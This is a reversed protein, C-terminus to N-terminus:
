TIDWDPIYGSQQEHITDIICRLYGANKRAALTALKKFQLVSSASASKFQGNKTMPKDGTGFDFALEDAIVRVVSVAIGYEKALSAVSFSEMDVIVVDPNNIKKKDEIDYLREVEMVLGSDVVNGNWSSVNAVPDLKVAEGLSRSHAARDPKIITGHTLGSGVAGALGFVIIHSITFNSFLYKHALLSRESGPGTELAIVPLTGCHGSYVQFPGPASIKDIRCCDIFPKMEVPLASSFAIASAQKYNYNFM